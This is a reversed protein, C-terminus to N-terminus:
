YIDVSGLAFVFTIDVSASVFTSSSARYLIAGPQCKDLRSWKLRKTTQSQCTICRLGPYLSTVTVLYMTHNTVVVFLALTSASIALVADPINVQRYFQVVCPVEENGPAVGHRASEDMHPATHRKRHMRFSTPSPYCRLCLTFESSMRPKNLAM